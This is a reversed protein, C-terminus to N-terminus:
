RGEEQAKQLVGMCAVLRQTAESDPVDTIWKLLPADHQFASIVDSGTPQTAQQQLASHM